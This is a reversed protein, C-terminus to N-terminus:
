DKLVEEAEKLLQGLKILQDTNFSNKQLEKYARKSDKLATILAQLTELVEETM